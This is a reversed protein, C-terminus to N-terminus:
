DAKIKTQHKLIEFDFDETIKFIDVNKSIINKCCLSIVLDQLYMTSFYNPFSDSIWLGNKKMFTAEKLGKAIGQSSKKVQAEKLTWLTYFDHHINDSQSITLHESNSFYRKSIKLINRHKSVTEVDIGIKSNAVAMLIYNNTHSINFHLSSNLLFPKGNKQSFDINKLNFFKEFIFFRIFQSFFIQPNNHNLELTKKLNSIAKIQSFKDFNLIFLRINNVQCSNPM